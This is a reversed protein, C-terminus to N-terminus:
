ANLKEKCKDAAEKIANAFSGDMMLTGIQFIVGAILKEEVTETMELTPVNLKTALLSVLEDKDGKNLPKATRIVPTKGKPDVASLDSKKIQEIFKKVFQDHFLERTSADLAFTLIDMNIDIIKRSVEVRLEQIYQERSAHAKGLIEEAEARAKKLTEEEKKHAEDMAQASMKDVITAAEERKAQLEKEGADIKESLDKQKRLLDEYVAAVRKLNNETNETTIKKFFYVLAIFVLIALILFGFFISM